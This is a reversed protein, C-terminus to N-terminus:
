CVEMYFSESSSTASSPEDYFQCNVTGGGSSSWSNVETGDLRIYLRPFQVSRFSVVGKTEQRLFYSEWSSPKFQCNVEGGGTYNHSNMGKSDMRIFVHRFKVSEIVVKSTGRPALSPAMEVPYIYFSELPSPPKYQCNVTGGGPGQWHTVGTGDCRLYVDPFKVSRLSTKKLGNVRELFRSIMEPTFRPASNPCGGFSHVALVTWYGGYWTYVPSGSQGGMTDNMYYIRNATYSSISGGTIWMTGQKKDGPYGCNTVIRNNLEEDPIIASWGFGDDSAGPLLILGYDHDEARKSIYEPSAYIDNPGVDVADEGPFTVTIKNAYAGDVYTCHGSTVVVTHNVNPLHIKFGSGIYKGGHATEITLSCIWKYPPSTIPNVEVREDRKKCISEHLSVQVGPLAMRELFRSIMEPTFRPASNPCGGYSHVALVTWYGGYWTYVPSGSQGGMTDNMYYIRNATYSSISGGTIWMTGQKKDGPYGCNTVIRNNLEKDPIIASWGFGDDSAGPLLILGYDHDEARKSIYEPSAYIDNPEVDVADEGPFTVTIKNAYAGDVYTCHGSTVVVTHNVNPLHIKFGSGIYKGGHATEITLSCIWKYPPSTIPNVQM